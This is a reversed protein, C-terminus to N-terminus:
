RTPAAVRRRDGGVHGVSGLRLSEAANAAHPTLKPSQSLSEGFPLTRFCCIGAGECPRDFGAPCGRLVVHPPLRTRRALQRYALRDPKPWRCAADPKPNAEQKQSADRGQDRSAAQRDSTVESARTPMSGLLAGAAALTLMAKKTTTM